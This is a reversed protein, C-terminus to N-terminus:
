PRGFRASILRRARMRPSSRTQSDATRAGAWDVMPRLTNALGRNENLGVALRMALEGVICTLFYPPWADELARFTFDAILDTTTNDEDCLIQDGQIAYRLPQDNQTVAHMALTDTPRQYAFNWRALPAASLKTLAEQATAFSWRMPKRGPTTLGERVVVEYHAALQQGEASGDDFAAIPQSGVLALAQNGIDIATFAM